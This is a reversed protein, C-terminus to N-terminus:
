STDGCMKLGHLNKINFHVLYYLKFLYLNVYNLFLLFCVLSELRMVDQTGIWEPGKELGAVAMQRCLSCLSSIHPSVDRARKIGM